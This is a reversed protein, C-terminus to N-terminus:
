SAKIIIGDSGDDALGGAYIINPDYECIAIEVIRDNAPINLGGEPAVYWSYGGNTTRYIRGSPTTLTAALWGVSPTSFKIDKIIDINTQNPLVKQTWNVGADVTYWLTGDDCGVFWVDPSHMWVCRLDVGANPGTVSYWADGGNRTYIVTNSDGVAVVNEMDYAHLNNLDNTTVTGATQVTVSNTPDETNYVYGGDGVIWTHRPSVSVIANPSGAAVFGTTVEAWTETGALIDSMNAWHLSDDDNSIVVLNAGVCAMDSPDKDADLTDVETDGWVTGADGTYIIEAKAGPSGGVTITLAFVKECGDSPDDCAGCSIRDCVMIALVEQVNESEAHEEMIVRKVEYMEEGKCPMEDNIVAQDGQELAGLDGISWEGPAAGEIILKKEWGENFDQPNRCAGLFVQIDFDCGKRNFELLDSLDNTYRSMLTIGPAGREGPIKGVTKFQGYSLPDPCTVITAEGLPRSPSSAKMCSQYEPAHDPGARNKITWVRTKTTDFITGM